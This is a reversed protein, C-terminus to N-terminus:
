SCVKSTSQAAFQMSHVSLPKVKSVASYHARVGHLGLGPGRAGCAQEGCAEEVGCACCAHRAQAACCEGRVLAVSSLECM